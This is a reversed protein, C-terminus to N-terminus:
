KRGGHQKIFYDILESSSNTMEIGFAEVKNTFWNYAWVAPVAVFLGFATTVLAESIGGAVASLGATKESSMGKFANIIGVTTGFLGVFPATAGITALGSLGRKLEANVIAEARECARRSSEIQEGAIERSVTHARFEQLGAEVVKALHSRKNQEAVSIAEEIKGEKLCGAVAPAFERSQKRAANFALYRDIMVGISWASMIALLVVVGRAPTGMNSWMTRLDFGVEQQLLMMAIFNLKVLLM